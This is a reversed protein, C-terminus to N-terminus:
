TALRPVLLWSIPHLATVETNELDAVSFKNSIYLRPIWGLGVSDPFQSSRVQLRDKLLGKLHNQHVSLNFAVIKLGCGLIGM